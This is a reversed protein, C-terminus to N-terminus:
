SNHNKVSNTGEQPLPKFVDMMLKAGLRFAYAFLEEREISDCKENMECFTHFQMLVAEDLAAELQEMMQMRNEAFREFDKRKRAKAYARNTHCNTGYYLEELVTDM